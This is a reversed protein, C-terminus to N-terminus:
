QVACKLGVIQFVPDVVETQIPQLLLLVAAFLLSEAQPKLCASWHLKQCGLGVPGSGLIFWYATVGSRNVGNGPQSLLLFVLLPFLHLHDHDHFQNHDALDAKHHCLTCHPCQADTHMM